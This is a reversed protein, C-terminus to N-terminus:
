QAEGCFNEFDGASVISPRRSLTRACHSFLGSPLFSPNVKNEPSVKEGDM